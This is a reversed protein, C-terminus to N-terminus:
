SVALGTLRDALAADGLVFRVHLLVHQGSPVAIQSVGPDAPLQDLRGYGQAVLFTRIVTAGATPVTGSPLRYRAVLADVTRTSGLQITTTDPAGFHSARKPLGAETRLDNESIGAGRGFDRVPGSAGGRVVTTFSSQGSITRLEEPSQPEGTAPDQVLGAGSALGRLIAPNLLPAINTGRANNLAHILEHGVTMSPDLRIVQLKGPEGGVGVQNRALEPNLTVTSGSGRPGGVASDPPRAAVPDTAETTHEPGYRLAVAQNTALLEAVLRFGSPLRLLDSLASRVFDAFASNSQEVRISTAGSMILELLRPAYATRFGAASRGNLENLATFDKRRFAREWAVADTHVADAGTGADALRRLEDDTASRLIVELREPNREDRFRDLRSQEQPSCSSCRRLALASKLRPLLGNASTQETAAAVAARDAEAELEAGGASPGTPERQQVAHAAEHALLGDGSATGPRYQAPDVVIRSGLTFASANERAAAAGDTVVTVDSLDTGLSAELRARTAPALPEGPKSTAAYPVAPRASLMGAVAANGVSRQLQVLGARTPHTRADGFLVRVAVAGDVFQQQTRPPPRAPEAIDDTRRTRNRARLM